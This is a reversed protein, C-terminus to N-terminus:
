SWYSLRYTKITSKTIKFYAWNQKNVLIIRDEEMEEFYSRFRFLNYFINISKVDLTVQNFWDVYYQLMGSSPIDKPAQNTVRVNSVRNTSIFNTSRKEEASVPAELLM